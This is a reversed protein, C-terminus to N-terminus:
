EAAAPFSTCLNCKRQRRIGREIVRHEVQGGHLQHHAGPLLGRQAPVPQDLDGRGRVARRDQRACLRGGAPSPAPLPAQPQRCASARGTTAGARGPPLACHCAPPVRGGRVVFVTPTEDKLEHVYQTLTKISPASHSFGVRRCNLPFHKTVPGKIVQAPPAPPPPPRPHDPLAPPPRLLPRPHPRRAAAAAACWGSPGPAHRCAHAGVAALQAELLPAVGTAVAAVGAPRVKMLKDSGNTARISLKQLLQVILGCFRKFTRPLRVKPNVQILVNKHTRVYVAQLPKTLPPQLRRPLRAAGRQAAPQLPVRRCRAATPQRCAAPTRPAPRAGQDQGGQQAPQRPHLPAGAPAAPRPTSRQRAPM